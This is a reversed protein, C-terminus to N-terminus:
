AAGPPRSEVLAAAPESIGEQWNRCVKCTLGDLLAAGGYTAVKGVFKRASENSMLLAIVGGAAAGSAM